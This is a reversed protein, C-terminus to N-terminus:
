IFQLICGLLSLLNPRKSVQIDKIGTNIWKSTLAQLSIVLISCTNSIYTSM